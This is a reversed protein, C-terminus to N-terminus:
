AIRLTTFRRIYKIKQQDSQIYQESTWDVTRSQLTQYSKHNIELDTKLGDASLLPLQVRAGIM